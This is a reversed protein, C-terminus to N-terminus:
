RIRRARLTGCATMTGASFLDAAILYITTTATIVVRTPPIPTTWTGTVTTGFTAFHAVVPDTGLGSGGAGSPITASTTGLAGTYRTATVGTLNRVLVASVDWEGATLALSCVDKPTNNVVAVADGVAVVTSLFEGQQRWVPVQATGANIYVDGTTTDVYMGLRKNASTPAGPGQSALPDVYVEGGAEWGVLYAPTTSHTRQM